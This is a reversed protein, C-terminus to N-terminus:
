PEHRADGAMASPSALAAVALGAVLDGRATARAYGPLEGAVPIAREILPPRPAWQRDSSVPAATM